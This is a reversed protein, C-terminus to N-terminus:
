GARQPSIVPTPPAGAGGQRNRPAIQDDRLRPGRAHPTYYTGLARTSVNLAQELRYDHVLPYPSPISRSGQLVPVPVRQAPHCRWAPGQQVRYRIDLNRAHQERVRM